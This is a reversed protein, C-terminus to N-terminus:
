RCKWRQDACAEVTIYRNLTNEDNINVVAGSDDEGGVNDGTYDVTLSRIYVAGQSALTCM